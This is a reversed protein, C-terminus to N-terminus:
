VLYKTHSNFKSLCEVPMINNPILGKLVLPRFYGTKQGTQYPPGISINCCHPNTRQGLMAQVLNSYM